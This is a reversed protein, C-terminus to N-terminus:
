TGGHNTTGSCCQGGPHTFSPTVCVHLYPPLSTFLSAPLCTLLCTIPPASPCARLRAHMCRAQCSCLLLLLLVEAGGLLIPASSCFVIHHPPRMVGDHYAQM